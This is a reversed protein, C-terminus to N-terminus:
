PAEASQFPNAKRKQKKLANASDLGLTDLSRLSEEAPNERAHSELYDLTVAAENRAETLDSSFDLAELLEQCVKKYLENERQLETVQRSSRKMHGSLAKSLIARKGQAENLEAEKQQFQAQLREDQTRAELAEELSKIRVNLGFAQLNLERNEQQLTKLKSESEAWKSQYQNSQEGVEQLNKKYAATERELTEAQEKLKVQLEQAQQTQETLEKQLLDNEEKQKLAQTQADEQFKIRSKESEDLKAQAKQEQEGLTKQLRQNEERLKKLQEKSSNQSQELSKGKEDREKLTKNLADQLRSQESSATRGQEDLLQQIRSNETKLSVIEAQRSEERQRVIEENKSLLTEFDSKQRRASDLERQLKSQLISNENRLPNLQKQLQSNKEVTEKLRKEQKDLKSTNESLQKKTTQANLRLADLEGLLEQERDSSLVVPETQAETSVMKPAKKGAEKAQASGGGFPWFSWSSDSRAAEKETKEQAMEELRKTVLLQIDQRDKTSARDNIRELWDLATRGQKDAKLPNAGAVLVTAVMDPRGSGIACHLLTAGNALFVPEDISKRTEIVKQALYAMVERNETYPAVRMVIQMPYPTAQMHGMVSLLDNPDIPNNKGSFTPQTVPATQRHPRSNQKVNVVQRNSVSTITFM